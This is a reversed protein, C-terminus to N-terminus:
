AAQLMVESTEPTDTTFEVPHWAVLPQGPMTRRQLVSVEPADLPTEFYRELRSKRAWADFKPLSIDWVNAEFSTRLRRLLARAANIQDNSRRNGFEDTRHCNTEWWTMMTPVHIICPYGNEDTEFEEM